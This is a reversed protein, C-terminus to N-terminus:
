PASAVVRSFSPQALTGGLEATYPLPGTPLEAMQFASRAPEELQSIEVRLALEGAAGIRGRATGSVPPGRLDAFDVRWAGDGERAAAIVLQVFPLEIAVPARLAVAGQSLTAELSERAGFRYVGDAAGRLSFAGPFVFQIAELPLSQARVLGGRLTLGRSRVLLTGAGVGGEVRLGSLLMRASVRDVEVREGGRVVVVREVTVGWPLAPRVGEFEAEFGQARIARSVLLPGLLAPALWSAALLIAAAVAVTRIARPM